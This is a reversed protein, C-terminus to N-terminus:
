RTSRRWWCTSPGAAAFAGSVGTALNGIKGWSWSADAVTPYSLFGTPRKDGDGSVFATGEQEAFATEVEGAIWAGMDVASDDLLSATAAPM